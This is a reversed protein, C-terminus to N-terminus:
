WSVMYRNMKSFFAYQLELLSIEGEIGNSEEETLVKSKLYESPKIDGGSDNKPPAAVEVHLKKREETRGEKRGNTGLKKIDNCLVNLM